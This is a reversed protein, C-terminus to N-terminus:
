GQAVRHSTAIQRKKPNSLAQGFCGEETLSCLATWYWLPEYDFVNPEKIPVWKCTVLMQWLVWHWALLIGWLRKLGNKCGFFQRVSDKFWSLHRM